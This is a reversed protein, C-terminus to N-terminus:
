SLFVICCSLVNRKVNTSPENLSYHKNHIYQKVHYDLLLSSILPFGRRMWYKVHQDSCMFCQSLSKSLSVTLFSCSKASISGRRCLHSDVVEVAAGIGSVTYFIDNIVVFYSCLILFFYHLFQLNYVFQYITCFFFQYGPASVNDQFLNM